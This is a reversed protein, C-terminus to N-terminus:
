ASSPPPAAGSTSTAVSWRRRVATNAAGSATASSCARAPRTPGSARGSTAGASRLVGLAGFFGPFLAAEVQVAEGRGTLNVRLNAATVAALASCRPAIEFADFERHSLEVVAAGKKLDTEWVMVLRDPEAFPLPTLLVAQVASYIATATGVALGITTIAALTM